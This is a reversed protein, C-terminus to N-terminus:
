DSPLKAAVLRAAPETHYPLVISVEFGGAEHPAAVLRCADGYLSSLRARSNALGVGERRARPASEGVGDDRVVLHLGDPARHARVAVVGGSARPGIGHKIANEVLPQLILNPVLATRVDPEM